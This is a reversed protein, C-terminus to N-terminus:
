DVAGGRAEMRVIHVLPFYMRLTANNYIQIQPGAVAFFKRLIKALATVM